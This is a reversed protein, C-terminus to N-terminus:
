GFGKLYDNWVILYYAKENTKIFQHKQAGFKRLFHQFNLDFIRARLFNHNVSCHDRLVFLRVCAENIVGRILKTTVIMFAANLKIAVKVWILLDFNVGVQCHTVKQFIVALDEKIIPVDHEWGKHDPGV